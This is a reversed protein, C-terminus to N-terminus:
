FDDDDPFDIFCMGVWIGLWASFVPIWGFCYGMVVSLVFFTVICFNEENM